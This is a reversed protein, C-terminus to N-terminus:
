ASKLFLKKYLLRVQSQTEHPSGSNDIIFNALRKKKSLPWQSRLRYRIEKEPLSERKKLRERQISLPAYVVATRNVLSQLNAEFLLPIDIVLLGSRHSKIKKQIQQIVRPHVCNELIKRKHKDKFILSGLKQRNLSGDKELIGKGFNKVIEKYAPLGKRAVDRSIKDCDLTSAGLNKFMKLVVSKGSAIGGTLGLLTPPHKKM